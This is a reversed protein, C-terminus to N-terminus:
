YICELMTLIVISYKCFNYHHCFFVFVNTVCYSFQLASLTEETLACPETEGKEHVGRCCVCVFMVDYVEELLKYYVQLFRLFLMGKFLGFHSSLMSVKSLIICVKTQYLNNQLLLVYIPNTRELLSSIM